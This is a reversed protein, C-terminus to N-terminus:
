QCTVSTVVQLTQQGGCLNSGWTFDTCAGWGYCTTISAASSLWTIASTRGALRCLADMEQQTTTPACCLCSDYDLPYGSLGDFNLTDLTVTATETCDAGAALQEYGLACTACVSDAATTCSSAGACNAVATCESCSAGDGWRGSPCAGCTRGTGPPPVRNCAVGPACPETACADPRCDACGEGEGLECRGNGCVDASVCAGGVCINGAPCRTYDDVAGAADCTIVGEDFCGPRDAECPACDLACYVDHIDEIREGVECLGNGCGPCDGPCRDREGPACIGDGCGVCDEPCRADEQENCRGDGCVGCDFGWRENWTCHADWATTGWPPCDVCDSGDEEAECVGDGCRPLVACRPVGGGLFCWEGPQCSSGDLCARVDPACAGDQCHFPIDFCAGGECLFSCDHRLLILGDDSCTTVPGKEDCHNDPCHGIVWDPDCVPPQGPTCLRDEPCFEDQALVGDGCAELRDQFLDPRWVRRVDEALARPSRGFVLPGVIAAGYPGFFLNFHELGDGLLKVMATTDFEHDSNVAPTENKFVLFTEGEPNRQGAFYGATVVPVDTFTWARTDVQMFTHFQQGDGALERLYLWLTDEVPFCEEIVWSSGGIHTPGVTTYPRLTPLLFPAPAGPGRCDLLPLGFTDCTAGALTACAGEDPRVAYDPPSTLDEAVVKWDRGFRRWLVCEGSDVDRHQCAGFGSGDALPAAGAYMIDVGVALSRRRDRSGLQATFAGLGPLNGRIVGPQPQVRAKDSVLTLCDSGDTAFTIAPVGGFTWDDLPSGDPAGCVLADSVEENSSFALGTIVPPPVAPPASTPVSAEWLRLQGLNPTETREAGRNIVGGSPEGLHYQPDDGEYGGLTLVFLRDGVEAAGVLVRDPALGIRGLPQRALGDDGWVLREIAGEPHTRLLRRGAADSSVGLNGGEDMVSAQNEILGDSRLHLTALGNQRVALVKWGTADPEPLWLDVDFEQDTPFRALWTWAADVQAGYAGMPTVEDGNHAALQLSGVSKRFVMATGDAARFIGAMRENEPECTANGFGTGLVPRCYRYRRWRVNRISLVRGQADVVTGRADRCTDPGEPLETLRDGGLSYRGCFTEDVGVWIDTHFVATQGDVTIDVRDGDPDVVVAFASPVLNDAIPEGGNLPRLVLEPVPVPAAPPPPDDQALLGPYPGTNNSRAQQFPPLPSGEVYDVEYPLGILIQTNSSNTTRRGADTVEIRWRVPSSESRSVVEFKWRPPHAWRMGVRVTKPIWLVPPDYLGERTDGELYIGDDHRGYFRVFYPEAPGLGTEFFPTPNQWGAAFVRRDGIMRDETMAYPPPRDDLDVPLDPGPRPVWLPAENAPGSGYSQVAPADHDGCAALAVCVGILCLLRAYAAVSLM